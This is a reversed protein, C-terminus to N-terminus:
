IMFIIQINIQIILEISVQSARGYPPRYAVDRADDHVGFILSAIFLLVSTRRGRHTGQGLMIDDQVGIQYM